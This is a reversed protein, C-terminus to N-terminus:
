KKEKKTKILCNDILKKLEENNVINGKMLADFLTSITIQASEQDKPFVFQIVEDLATIQPNRYIGFKKLEDIFDFVKVASYNGEEDGIVFKVRKNGEIILSDGPDLKKQYKKDIPDSGDTTYFITGSGDDTKAYLTLQGKFTVQNEQQAVANEFDVQLQGFKITNNEIHEKGRKIHEVLAAIQNNNWNKVEGFGYTEPLTIFLLKPIDAYNTHKVLPRSDITHFLGKSDNQVDSLGIYWNKLAEQVDLDLDSEASFVQSIELLILKQISLQIDEAFTKFKEIKIKIQDLEKDSFDGDLTFGLKEILERKILSFSDKIASQSILEALDKEEGIYFEKSKAIEPLTKWWEVLANRAEGITFKRGAQGPQSEFTQTLIRFYNQDSESVPEFILVANSHNGRALDLMAQSEEFQMDMLHSREGKFRLSDGYFRRALLLMFTIAIDGQGFDMRLQQILPLPSVAGKNELSSLEELLFAYAPFTNSFKKINKEVEVFRM